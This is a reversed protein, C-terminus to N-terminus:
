KLDQKTNKIKIKQKKIKTKTKKVRKLVLLFKQNIHIMNLYNTQIKYKM